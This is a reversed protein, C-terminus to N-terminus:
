NGRQFRGRPRRKPPAREPAPTADGRGVDGVGELRVPLIVPDTMRMTAEPPAGAPGMVLVAEVRVEDALGQPEPGNVPATNTTSM